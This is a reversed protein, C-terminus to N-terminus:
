TKKLYIMSQYMKFKQIKNNQSRTRSDFICYNQPDAADKHLSQILLPMVIPSQSM